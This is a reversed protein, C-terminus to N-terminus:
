AESGLAELRRSWTAFHPCANRLTPIGIKGLLAPGDSTEKYETVMAQRRAKPHHLLRDPESSLYVQPNHSLVRELLRFVGIFNPKGSGNVGIVVNLDGLEMEAHEISKFGDISIKCLTKM